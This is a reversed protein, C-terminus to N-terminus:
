IYPHHLCAIYTGFWFSCDNTQSHSMCVILHGKFEALDHTSQFVCSATTPLAWKCWTLLARCTQVELSLCQM